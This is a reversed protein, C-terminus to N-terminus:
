VSADRSQRNFRHFFHHTQPDLPSTSIAVSPLPSATSDEVTIAKGRIFSTLVAELKTFRQDQESQWAAQELHFTRFTDELVTTNREVQDVCSEM